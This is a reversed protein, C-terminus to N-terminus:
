TAGRSTASRGMSGPRLERRLIQEVERWHRNRPKQDRAIFQEVVAAVTDAQAPEPEALAGPDAMLERAKARADALAMTGPEGVKIRSPNKAGPKRLAVVYSRGGAATIRLGFAPLTTDWVELRGSQPPRIRQVSLETLKTQM